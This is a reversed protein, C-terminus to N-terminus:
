LALEKGVVMEGAWNSYKQGTWKLEFLFPVRVPTCPKTVQM